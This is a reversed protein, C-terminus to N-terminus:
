LYLVKTEYERLLLTETEPEIDALPNPAGDQYHVVTKLPLIGLGEEIREAKRAYFFRALVNVGASDGAITKGSFMKSLGEHKILAEKLRLSDGGHLYIVDAWAVDEAFSEELAIRIDLKRNGCNKALSERDQGIRMEVKEEGEAFYVLLLKGSDPIDKIMEQFFIDDEQLPYNEKSFGGHLIFKTTM